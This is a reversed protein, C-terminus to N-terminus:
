RGLLGAHGFLRELIRRTEEPINYVNIDDGLRIHRETFTEKGPEFQYSTIIKGNETLLVVWEGSTRKMMGTTMGGEQSPLAVTVEDASNLVDFTKKAYDEADKVHNVAIRKELHKDFGKPNFWLERLLEASVDWNEILALASSVLGTVVGQAKEDATLNPGTSLKEKMASYLKADDKISRQGIAKQVGELRGQYPNYDWGPDPMAPTEQGTKPDKVMPVKNLGTGIGSRAHAGSETLSILSCRCRYGNPPSHTSLWPDGIERITGDM